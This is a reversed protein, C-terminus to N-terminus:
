GHSAGETHTRRRAILATGGGICVAALVALWWPIRAGTDPLDEGIVASTQELAVRFRLDTSLLQTANPSSLDFDVTVTVPVVQQDEIGPLTLLRREAGDSVVGSRGDAIATVHLDGSDLLEGTHDGLLDVTLRAQTGGQNRVYFTATRSDGPVWRVSADFLPGSLNDAYTVGDRSLGLEDAANAAVPTMLIMTVAAVLATLHRKM